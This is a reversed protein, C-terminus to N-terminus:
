EFARRLADSALNLDYAVSEAVVGRKGLKIASVGTLGIRPAERWFPLEGVRSRQGMSGRLFFALDPRRIIGARSLRSQLLKFYEHMTRQEFSGVLPDYFCFEPATAALIKASDAGAWGELYCDLV